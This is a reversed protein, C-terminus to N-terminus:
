VGLPPSVGMSGSQPASLLGSCACASLLLAYRFASCALAVLRGSVAHRINDIYGTPSPRYRLLWCCRLLRLIEFLVSAKLM